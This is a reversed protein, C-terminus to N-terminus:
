SVRPSAEEVVFRVDIETGVVVHEPKLEVAAAGSSYPVASIDTTTGSGYSGYPNLNPELMGADAIATPRVEGLGLSEAYQQAREVANRVAQDRVQRTVEERRAVTLAWKTSSVRFGELNITHERVWSSLATFDRFKVEISVAAHHVLPLQEGDQNWPRASWTRLQQASWWTVAPDAGSALSEVSTRVVDLDQAVLTYVPDM